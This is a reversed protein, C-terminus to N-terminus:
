ANAETKDDLSFVEKIQQELNDYDFYLLDSNPNQLEQVEKIKKLTNKSAVVGILGKEGEDVDKLLDKLGSELLDVFDLSIVGDSIEPVGRHWEFGQKPLVDYDRDGPILILLTALDDTALAYDIIGEGLALNDYIALDLKDATNKLIDKWKQGIEIQQCNQSEKNNMITEFDPLLSGLSSDELVERGSIKKELDNKKEKLQGKIGALNNLVESEFVSLKNIYGDDFIELIKIIDLAKNIWKLTKIPNYLSSVGWQQECRSTNCLHLDSYIKVMALAIAFCTLCDDLCDIPINEEFDEPCKRQVIDMITPDAKEIAEFNPEVRSKGVTLGFLSIELFLPIANLSMQYVCKEIESSIFYILGENKHVDQLRANNVVFLSTMKQSYNYNSSWLYAVKYYNLAVSLAPHSLSYEIHSLWKAFRLEKSSSAMNSISKDLDRIHTLIKENIKLISITQLQSKQEDKMDLIKISWERQLEPVLECLKEIKDILLSFREAGFVNGKKSLYSFHGEKIQKADYNEYDLDRLLKWIEIVRTLISEKHNPYEKLAELFKFPTFLNYKELVSPGESINSLILKNWFMSMCPKNEQYGDLTIIKNAKQFDGDKAYNLCVSLYRSCEDKDNSLLEKLFVVFENGVSVDYSNANEDRANKPKEQAIKVLADALVSAAYGDKQAIADTAYRIVVDEDIKKSDQGSGFSNCDYKISFCNTKKALSVLRNKDKYKDKKSLESEFGYYYMLYAIADLARIEGNEYAIIYQDLAKSFDKNWIFNGYRWSACADKADVGKKFYAEAKKNDPEIGYPACEYLRGLYSYAAPCKAHKGKSDEGLAQEYWFRAKTGSIDCGIGWQYCTGMLIAAYPNDIDKVANSLLQFAMQHGNESAGADPNYYKVHLVFCAWPAGTKAIPEVLSFVDQNFYKGHYYTLKYLKKLIGDIEKEKSQIVGESISKFARILGCAAIRVATKLEQQYVEFPRNEGGIELYDIKSLDKIRKEYFKVENLILKYENKTMSHKPVTIEQDDKQESDTEKKICQKVYPLITSFNNSLDENLIQKQLSLSIMLEDSDYKVPPITDVVFPVIPKHCKELAYKVEKRVWDSCLAFNSLAFLVCSSNRIAEFIDNGYDQTGRIHLSDPAMWCKYGEQELFQKIERAKNMEQSKYSIFVYGQDTTM